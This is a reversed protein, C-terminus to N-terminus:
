GNDTSGRPKSSSSPANGGLRILSRAIEGLLSITFEINLFNTTGEDVVIKAHPAFEDDGVHIIVLVSIKPFVRIIFSADGYFSKVGGLSLCIKRFEQLSSDGVGFREGLARFSSPLKASIFMGDPLSGYDVWRGTPGERPCTCLYSLLFLNMPYAVPEGGPSEVKGDPMTLIGTHSFLPISLRYETNSQKEILSAGANAAVEEISLDLLRRREIDYRDPQAPLGRIM